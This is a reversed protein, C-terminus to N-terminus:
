SDSDSEPNSHDVDEQPDLTPLPIDDIIALDGEYIGILAELSLDIFEQIKRIRSLSHKKYTELTELEKRQYEELYGVERRIRKLGTLRIDMIQRVRSQEQSYPVVPSFHVALDDSIDEPPKNSMEYKQAISLNPTNLIISAWRHWYLELAKINAHNSKLTRIMRSISEMSPGGARNTLPVGLSSTKWSEYDSVMKVTTVNTSYRYITVALTNNEAKSIMKMLKDWTLLRATTTGSNFLMKRSNKENMENITIESTDDFQGDRFLVRKEIQVKFHEWILQKFEEYNYFTFEKAPIELFQKSGIFSKVQGKVSITTSSNEYQIIEVDIPDQGNDM